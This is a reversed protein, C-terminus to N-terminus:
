VKLKFATLLAKRLPVWFRNVFYPWTWRVQNLDKTMYQAVKSWLVGEKDNQSSSELLHCDMRVARSKFSALSKLPRTVEERRDGLLMWSRVCCLAKLEAFVIRIAQCTAAQPVFMPNGLSPVRGQLPTDRPSPGVVGYVEQILLSAKDTLMKNQLWKRQSRRKTGGELPM